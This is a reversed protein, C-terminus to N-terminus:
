YVSSGGKYILLGKIKVLLNIEKRVFLNLGLHSIRLPYCVGKNKIAKRPIVSGAGLPDGVYGEIDFL